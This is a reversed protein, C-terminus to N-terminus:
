KKKRLKEQKLYQRIGEKIMSYLRHYAIAQPQKIGKETLYNRIFTQFAQDTPNIMRVYAEFM